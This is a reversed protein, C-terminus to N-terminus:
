LEFYTKIVSIRQNYTHKNIVTEMASFIDSKKYTQLYIQVKDNNVEKGTNAFMLKNNFCENTITSNTLCPVGIALHSLVKEDIKTQRDNICCSMKSDNLLTVENDLTIIRKKVFGSLGNIYKLSSTNLIRTMICNGKRNEIPVFSKTNEIIQHPTLISAFPMVVTKTSYNIYVYDDLKTYGTLDLTSDYEVYYLVNIEDKFVENDANILVYYNYDSLPILDNNEPSNVIILTNEDYIEDELIHLNKKTVLEISNLDMESFANYFGFNVYGSPHYLKEGFVIVNNMM